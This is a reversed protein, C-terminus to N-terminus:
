SEYLNIKNYKTVDIMEATSADGDHRKVLRKMRDEKNMSLNIFVVDEGLVDRIADRDHRSMVVYAVAFDGGIRLKEHKINEALATYVQALEEKDYTVGTPSTATSLIQGVVM